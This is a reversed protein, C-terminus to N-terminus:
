PNNINCYKADGSAGISTVVRDPIEPDLRKYISPSQQDVRTGPDLSSYEGSMMMNTAGAAESSTGVSTHDINAYNGKKGINSNQYLAGVDGTNGTNVFTELDIADVQIARNLLVGRDATTHQQHARQLQCM